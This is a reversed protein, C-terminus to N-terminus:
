FHQIVLDAEREQPRVKFFDVVTEGSEGFLCFCLDLLLLVGFYKDGVLLGFRLQDAYKLSLLYLRRTIVEVVEVEFIVVEGVVPHIM